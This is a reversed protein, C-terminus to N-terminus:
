ASCTARTSSRPLLEEVGDLVRYGKSEAVAEPLYKLRVAM